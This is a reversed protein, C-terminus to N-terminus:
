RKCVINVPNGGRRDSSHPKMNNIRTDPTLGFRKMTQIVVGMEVVDGNVEVLVGELCRGHHKLGALVDMEHGDVDIKLYIPKKIPILGILSDLTVTLVRRECEVDIHEGTEDIPAYIQSGSEGVGSNKIFFKALAQNRGVGANIPTINKLDNLLVNDVLRTFNELMPEFSYVQLSPKTKAAYLSYVGINAGVDIFISDPKFGDIWVITEPEKSWFTDARYKEMATGTQIRFGLPKGRHDKNSVPCSARFLESIRKM